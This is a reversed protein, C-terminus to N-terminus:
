KGLLQKEAVKVLTQRMWDVAKRDANDAAAQFLEYEFQNLRITITKYTHRAKPDYDAQKTVKKKPTFIKNLNFSFKRKTNKSNM